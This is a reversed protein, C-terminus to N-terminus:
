CASKVSRMCAFADAGLHGVFLGGALVAVLVVFLQLPAFELALMAEFTHPERRLGMRTIPWANLVFGVPLGIFLSLTVILIAVPQGAIWEYVTTVGASHLATAILMVAFPAVLVFGVVGVLLRVAYSYHPKNWGEPLEGLMLTLILRAPKREANARVSIWSM